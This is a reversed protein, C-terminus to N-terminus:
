HDSGPPMPGAALVRRYLDESAPFVPSSFPLSELSGKSSANFNGLQELRMHVELLSACQQAFIEHRITENSKLSTSVVSQLIKPGTDMGRDVCHVTNGVFLEGASMSREFAGLGKYSPLLSPHFNILRSAYASLIRGRLLRTFFLYVYDIRHNELTKLIENSKFKKLDLAIYEICSKECFNKVESLGSTIMLDISFEHRSTLEYVKKLVSARTSTIVAYRKNM